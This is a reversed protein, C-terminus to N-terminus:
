PQPEGPEPTLRFLVSELSGNPLRHVIEGGVAKSKDETVRGAADVYTIVEDPQVYDRASPETM